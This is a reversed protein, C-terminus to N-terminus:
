DIKQPNTQKLFVDAQNAIQAIISDSFTNGKLIFMEKAAFKETTKDALLINNMTWVCTSLSMTGFIEPNNKKKDYARM